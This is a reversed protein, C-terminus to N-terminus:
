KDLRDRERCQGGRVDVLEGVRGGLWGRGERGSGEERGDGGEGGEGKRRGRGVGRREGREFGRRGGVRSGGPRWFLLLLIGVRVRGRTRFGVGCVEGGQGVWIRM